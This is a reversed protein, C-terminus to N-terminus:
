CFPTQNAKLAQTLALYRQKFLLYAAQKQTTMEILYGFCENIDKLLEYEEEGLAHRLDVLTSIFFKEDFESDFSSLCQKYLHMFKCTDDFSLYKQYLQVLRLPQGYETRYFNFNKLTLQECNFTSLLGNPEQETEFLLAHKEWREDDYYKKAVEILHATEFSIFKWESLCDHYISLQNTYSRHIPDNLYAEYCEGIANDLEHHRKIDKALLGCFAIIIVLIIAWRLYSALPHSDLADNFSFYHLAFFGLFSIVIVEYWLGSAKYLAAHAAAITTNQDPIPLKKDFLQPLKKMTM